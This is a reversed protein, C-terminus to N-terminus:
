SVVGSMRIFCIACGEGARAAAEARGVPASRRRWGAVTHAALPTHALLSLTPIRLWSCRSVCLGHLCAACTRLTHSIV